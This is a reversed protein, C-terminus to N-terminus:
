INSPPRVRRSYDAIVVGVIEPATQDHEDHRLYIPSQFDPHTSRPWLAIRGSTEEVIEKLTIEVVDLKHRQVIVYDGNRVGAEAPHATIVFRGEPYVLNMSPGAVRWARLEANEYGQVDLPLFDSIDHTSISFAERWIGAEVDGVIPIRRVVPRSRGAPMPRPSDNATSIFNRLADPRIPLGPSSSETNFAGSIAKDTSAAPSGTLLWESTTELSRALGQLTRTSVGQRSPNLEVARRLNRIADESLGADRSAQSANKGVAELRSEIRTLIDRLM